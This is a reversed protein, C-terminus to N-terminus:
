PMGRIAESLPQRPYAAGLLEQKLILKHRWKVKGNHDIMQSVYPEIATAREWPMRGLVACRGGAPQPKASTMEPFGTWRSGLRGRWPSARSHEVHRRGPARACGPSTVM